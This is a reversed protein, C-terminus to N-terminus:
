LFECAVEFKEVADGGVDVAVEIRQQDAAVLQHPEIWLSAFYRGQGRRSIAKM